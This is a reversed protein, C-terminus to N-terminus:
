KAVRRLHERFDMPRRRQRAIVWERTRSAADPRGRQASINKDTDFAYITKFRLLMLDCTWAFGDKTVGMAFLAGCFKWRGVWRRIRAMKTSVLGLGIDIKMELGAEPTFPQELFQESPELVCVTNSYLLKLGDTWAFCIFKSVFRGRM